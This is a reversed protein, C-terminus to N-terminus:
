SSIAGGIIALVGAIVNGSFVMLIGGVVGYTIAPEGRKAKEWAKYTMILGVLGLVGLIGLALLGRGVIPTLPLSPLLPIFLILDIILLILGIVGIIWAAMLIGTGLKESSM